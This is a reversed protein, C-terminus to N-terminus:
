GKELAEKFLKEIKDTAKDWTFQKATKLGNEKLNDALNKDKLVRLIAEAMAQANQPPVVLSNEGDIAYEETGLCDTTVVPARCAMAELPPAPCGEIWSPLVFVDCSSYLEALEDDTAQRQEYPINSDIDMKSRGVIILKIDKRKQYVLEVARILDSFGKVRARRGLCLITKVGPNKKVQRPYFKDLDIGPNVVTTKKGMELYIKDDLWQSVTIINDFYKYSKKIWFRHFFQWPKEYFIADYNQVLYIPRGRKLVKAAILLHLSALGASTCIIDSKPTNLALAIPLVFLRTFRNGGRTIERLNARLPFNLLYSDKPLIVTVEHGRDTLDNILKVLYKEGGSKGLSILPFSIKM